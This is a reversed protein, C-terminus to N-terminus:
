ANAEGTLEARAAMILQPGLVSARVTTEPDAVTVESWGLARAEEALLHAWGGPGYLVLPGVGPSALLNLTQTSVAGLLYASLDEPSAHLLVQGLRVMFLARGLGHTRADHLGRRWHAPSPTTWDSLPLVSGALVTYEAVAALLEGALSTRSGLIRGATDVEVSKPHSGLHLFTAASLGLLRRLGLVEVEEGRLVDAQHLTDWGLAGPLTKIGPILFCPAAFEALDARVVARALEAAGAPALQHPVEILGVNSTIMGSCVLETVGAVQRAQALLDAIARRLAASSGSAAVDRAGVGAEGSWLVEESRVVRLRTRTTGSDILARM